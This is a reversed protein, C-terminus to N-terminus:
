RNYYLCTICIHIINMVHKYTYCVNYMYTNIDINMVLKYTYCVNYMYTNININMVHKYTYCV